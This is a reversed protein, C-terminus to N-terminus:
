VAWKSYSPYKDWSFPLWVRSINQECTQCFTYQTDKFNSIASFMPNHEHTNACECIETDYDESNGIYTFGNDNCILCKTKTTM